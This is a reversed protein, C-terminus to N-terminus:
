AKPMLRSVRFQILAIKSLILCDITVLPIAGVRHYGQRREQGVPSQVRVWRREIIYSRGSCTLDLTLSKASSLAM